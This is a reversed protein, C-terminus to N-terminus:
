GGQFGKQGKNEQRHGKKKDMGQAIKIQGVKHGAQDVLGGAFRDKWRLLGGM